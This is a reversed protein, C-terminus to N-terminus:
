SPACPRACPRACPSACPSACPPACRPNVAVRRPSLLTYISPVCVGWPCMLTCVPICGELPVYQPAHAPGARQGALLFQAAGMRDFEADLTTACDRVCHTDLNLLTVRPLSKPVHELLDLTVSTQNLAESCAEWRSINCSLGHPLGRRPVSQVWECHEGMWKSPTPDLPGAAAAGAEGAARRGGSLVVYMRLPLTGTYHRFMSTAFPSEEELARRGAPGLAYVLFPM